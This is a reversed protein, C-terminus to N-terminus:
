PVTDYVGFTFAFLGFDPSNSSMTLTERRVYSENIVVNYLTPATVWLFSEGDDGIIIDNGKNKETLYKGDQTIRVKYPNGSDSTLVGNVSTGSYVM